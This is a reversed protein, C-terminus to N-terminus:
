GLPKGGPQAQRPRNPDDQRPAAELADLRGLAEKGGVLAVIRERQGPDGGRDLQDATVQRAARADGHEAVVVDVADAGGRDEDARQAGEAGIGDPLQGAAEVVAVPERGGRDLAKGAAADAQQHGDVAADGRDLLHGRGARGPQVHNDAVM